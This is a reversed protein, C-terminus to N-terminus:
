ALRPKWPAAFLGIALASWLALFILGLNAHELASKTTPRAYAFDPVTEWLERGAQYEQGKPMKNKALAGNMAAVLEGRHAEASLAFDLHHELDTGSLAMSARRMAAFPWVFAAFDRVRNQARWALWMEDFVHHYARAQYEEGAQMIVGGINIPLEERKEVGYQALIEAELKETRENRPDHGDVGQSYLKNAAQELADASPTPWRADAYENLARPAVFTGFAWAVLLLGLSLRTSRLRATAATALALVIGLFVALLGGLVLARQAFEAKSEEGPVNAAFALCIGYGPVAVTFLAAAAGFFKGIMWVRPTAGLALSQTFLGQEREGAVAGHALFIALLPLLAYLLFAPGSEGLRGIVASDRAPRNSFESRTHAELHTVVGAFPEVGTDFASLRTVPKYAYTGYHAASHPNSPAQGLWMERTTSRAASRERAADARSSSMALLAAVLVAAILGAAAHFRGDRLTCRLENRAIHLIM